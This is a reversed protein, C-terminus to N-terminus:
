EAKQHTIGEIAYDYIFTQAAKLTEGDRRNYYANLLTNFDTIGEVPIAIIGAGQAILTKNAALTATRKNADWFLQSKMLWFLLDLGQQTITASDTATLLQNLNQAVQEPNPIPPRWNTGAIGVAGDRLCGANLTEGRGVFGHLRCLWDTDLAEDLTALVFRWAERLNLVKEIDTSPLNKVIAHEVIAYTDPFTVNIGELQASKWISDVLNRKALFVNENRPMHFKDAFM